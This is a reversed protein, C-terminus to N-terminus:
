SILGFTKWTGPTGAVTCVWGIFGASAPSENYVIDGQVYTGSAPAATGTGVFKMNPGRFYGARLAVGAAGGMRTAVERPFGNAVTALSNTFEFLSNNNNAWDWFFRGTAGKLRIPYNGTTEAPDTLALISSAAGLTGHYNGQDNFTGNQYFRTSTSLGEVHLNATSQSSFGAGHLGSIVYTPGQLLAPPQGGESYCGIFANRANANDTRYPGGIKYTNGGVWAPYYADPGDIHYVAWRSWLPFEPLSVGGAGLSSWVAPNTGPVTTAGANGNLCAYRNGGYSVRGSSRLEWVTPDTGPTTAGGLTDHVVFYHGSLYTVFAKAAGNDAAHCAVYTNGLFSSDYIGIEGNGSADVRTAIGANVDAGDVFLGHVGNGMLRVSTIEWNNANGEIAGGGSTAVIKIGHKRFNYVVVDRIRCRSRAWVGSGQTGATRRCVLSMSSIVSGSADKGNSSTRYDNVVIGDINDAFCLQTAGLANGDPHGEGLLAVSGIINLTSDMRYKGRPVIVEGLYNYYPDNFAVGVAAMAAVFAPQCDYLLTGALVDAIQADTMFKFVSVKSSVSSIAAGLTNAPYSVGSNYGVMGAGKSSSTYDALDTSSVTSSFGDVTWITNDLADKLIAKYAGDWFITAEGRADLIVPNANPTTGGADSYTAKPTSTGAAYTYLKGGALPTGDSKNFNQKGEPLLTAM